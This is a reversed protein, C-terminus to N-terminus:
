VRQTVMRESTEAARDARESLRVWFSLPVFRKAGEFVWDSARAATM